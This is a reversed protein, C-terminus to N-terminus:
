ENFIANLILKQSFPDDDSWIGTEIRVIDKKNKHKYLLHFDRVKGEPISNLFSMIKEYTERGSLKRDYMKKKIEGEIVDSFNATLYTIHHYVKLKSNKEELNLESNLDRLREILDEKYSFKADEIVKGHIIERFSVM